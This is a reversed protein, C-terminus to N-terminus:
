NFNVTLPELPAGFDATWSQGPEVPFADTWTGTTIVDGAKLDTAGPCQRLEVLFHHLARLPSDLVNSGQGKDKVESEQRLTVTCAALKEDLEAASTAVKHLAQKRGVLLRAHLGSDAMTDAAKFKWDALHSQVIEFGPAIWAISQFLQELTANAPPTVAMGFVTEPEIRPQATCSLDLAGESADCTTLTSDWVTGWIPAFVGYRPWISRNTFGIKYGRPKEGRVIRLARVALAQQYAAASDFGPADSPAAAWLQGSDIHQLLQQPTMRYLM